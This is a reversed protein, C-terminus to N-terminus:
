GLLRLTEKPPEKKALGVYSKECEFSARKTPKNRTWNLQAKKERLEKKKRDRIGEGLGGSLLETEGGREAETGHGRAGVSV